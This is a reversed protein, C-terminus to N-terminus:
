AIHTENRQVDFLTESTNQSHTKKLGTSVTAVVEDYFRQLEHGYIYRKGKADTIYQLGMKIYRYITTRHTGFKLKAASISYLKDHSINKPRKASVRRGM